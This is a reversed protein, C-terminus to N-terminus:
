CGRTAHTIGYDDLVSIHGDATRGGHSGMAPFVFPRAGLDKLWRVTAGVITDINAIGRSGAGVAVTDGPRIRLAAEGLTTAVARPIDAVRPRPSTQRVRIMRPLAM